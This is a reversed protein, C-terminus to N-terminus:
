MLGFFGSNVAPPPGGGAGKFTVVGCIWTRSAAITFTATQAGTAAVVKSEMAVACNAVNVTGLNTYGSGLSFASALADHSAGGVVLEAAQTTTPSAGSSVATGTSGTSTNQDLPNSTDCGSFEQAVLVCRGTNGTNWTASVTHSAGGTINKAYWIQMSSSSSINVVQTYANGKSDAVASVSTTLGSDDATTVVILNGSTTSGAFATTTTPSTTANGTTSQVFSIAM